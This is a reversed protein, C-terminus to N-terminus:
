YVIDEEEMYEEEGPMYVAIEDLQTKKINELLTKAESFKQRMAALRSMIAQPQLHSPVPEYPVKSENASEKIVPPMTIKPLPSAHVVAPKNSRILYNPRSISVSATESSFQSSSISRAPRTTNSATSLSHNNSEESFESDYDNVREEPIADLLRM